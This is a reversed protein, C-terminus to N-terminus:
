HVSPSRDSGSLCLLVSSLTRRPLELKDCLLEIMTGALEPDVDSAVLQQVARILTEISVVKADLIKTDM